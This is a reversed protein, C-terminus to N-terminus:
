KGGESNSTAMDFPCEAKEGFVLEYMMRGAAWEDWNGDSSVSVCSGYIHKARILIATVVADYPKYNTKCFDFITEEGKRWETQTPIGAWHFTEHSYDRREGEEDIARADGNIAFYAENFDPEAEGQYDRVRIGNENAWDCLKKADLSLKGFMYASGANKVPRDWYHTYGM